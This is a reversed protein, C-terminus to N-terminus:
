ESAPPCPGGERIQQVKERFAEVWVDANRAAATVQDFHTMRSGKFLDRMQQDSLQELWGLLLLRGEESIRREPFTAGRFPLSKMSVTCTKGDAWVRYRRWNNLDVKVPGFTAGLDQMIALPRSCTGDPAKSGTPCVLRQNEAKNDWHALLVAMLRLADVEAVPSGGRSPDIKDLEFWAWGQDPTGEIKEGEVKREVVATEFNVVRNYNIGGAFCASKMGTKQLCKLSQFPFVPCGACRVRKVVYVHDAGFGLAILLRTAAVEARLEPNGTGYKVKVVEGGPLECYFKPTTGSVKQTTFRCAIEQDAQISAADAPNDRLNAQDIAVPPANWVRAAALAEDRRKMARDDDMVTGTPKATAKVEGVTAPASADGSCATTAALAASMTWVRLTAHTMAVAREHL